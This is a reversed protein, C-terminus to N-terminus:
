YQDSKSAWDVFIPGIERIEVEIGTPSEPGVIAAPNNWRAHKVKNELVSILIIDFLNM